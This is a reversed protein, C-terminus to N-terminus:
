QYAMSKEESILGIRDGKKIGTAQLGAAFSCFRGTYKRTAPQGFSEKMKKWLLVNESYKSVSAEFLEIITKM